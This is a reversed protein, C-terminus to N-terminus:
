GAYPRTEKRTETDDAPSWTERLADVQRQLAAARATLEAARVNLERAEAALERLVHAANM